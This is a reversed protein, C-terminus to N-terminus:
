KQKDEDYEAEELRIFEPFSILGQPELVYDDTWEDEETIFSEPGYAFRKRDTCHLPGFTNRRTFIVELERPDDTECRYPPAFLIKEDKGRVKICSGSFEAKQMLYRGKMEPLIYSIKGSYFPFGQPTVDGCELERPMEDIEWIRGAANYFVGFEGLLYIAELGNTCQYEYFLRIENEGTRLCCGDLKVVSFCHDAWLKEGATEVLQECNNLLIEKVNDKDEFALKMEGPINKIHFRYSLWVGWQKEYQEPMYKKMYWPQLMEGGRRPIGLEDRLARDAKLVNGQVKFEEREVAVHDLVLINPESLRYTLRREGAAKLYRDNSEVRIVRYLKEEGPAFEMKKRGYARNEIRTVCGSRADWKDICECRGFGVYIGNCSNTRDTNLMMIYREKGKENVRVMIKEADAGSIELGNDTGCSELIDKKTYPTCISKRATALINESRLGDVYIPLEGAFIVAGGREAFEDLLRLTSSRITDMGAILVKKYCCEGMWLGCGDVKGHRALLEEDGYDFGVHGKTLIRFTDTYRKELFCIREDVGDLSEFAGMRSYGWVSEIPNLVLLDSVERGQALFVAIRAFYTELEKYEESWASQYFISAPYDRKAEGKMTYWSLHPCRLNIGLLAQWDGTQKYKELSMNWGTGGYLESLVFPKGLQKAASVVQRVVWWNTNDETLIDIGPYDMYEYFRMLDGQMVTQASLSDEHLVHGTFIMHNEACWNQITAAYSDLFLRECVGIYDYAAKSFTGPQRLFLEPLKERLDYGCMDEFCAFLKETYPIRNKAGEAFDSFLAGRHPEDTFIGYISSGIRERCAQRYKEHTLRVFEKVADRNMTDLYSFGNYVEKREATVICFCLIKKENKDPAYVFVVNEPMSDRQPDIMKMEIYKAGYTEDQTVAGGAIGSPWRDEDYLWVEMGEEAAADACVNVLEMWKTGLYETELGTRSHIFFGGFGMEKFVHVQKLVEKESLRGNWAWFPKARYVAGPHEFEKRLDM